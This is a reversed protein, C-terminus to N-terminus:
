VWMFLLGERAKQQLHRLLPVPAVARWEGCGLLRVAPDVASVYDQDGIASVVYLMLM